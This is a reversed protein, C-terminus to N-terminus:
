LLLNLIWYFHESILHIPFFGHLTFFFEWIGHLFWRSEESQTTFIGRETLNMRNEFSRITHM